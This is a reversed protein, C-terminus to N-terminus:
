WARRAIVSEEASVGVVVCRVRGVGDKMVVVERPTMGWRELSLTRRVEATRHIFTGKSVKHAATGRKEDDYVDSPAGHFVIWGNWSELRRRGFADYM